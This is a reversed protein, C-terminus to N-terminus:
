AVNKREIALEELCNLFSMICSCTLRYYVQLGRKDSEVIGANKLVTLHKSVTSMDAGISSQLECVCREGESLENVILLRSSHALAKLVGARVDLKEKLTKNM